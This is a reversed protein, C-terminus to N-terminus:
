RDEIPREKESEGDREELTTYRSVSLQSVGGGRRRRRETRGDAGLNFSAILFSPAPATQEPSPGIRRTRRTPGRTERPRDVSRIYHSACILKGCVQPQTIERM